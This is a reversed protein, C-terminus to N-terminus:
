AVAQDRPRTRRTRTRRPRIRPGRLPQGPDSGPVLRLSVWQRYQRCEDAFRRARHASVGATGAEEAVRDLQEDLQDRAPTARLYHWDEARVVLGAAVLKTLHRRVTGSHKGTMEAIERASRQEEEDLASLTELCGKGLARGHFADHAALGRMTGSLMSELPVERLKQETGCGGGRLPNTIAVQATEPATLRFVAARDQKSVRVLVLWGLRRLRHLSRSATPTSIGAHLAVSRISLPVHLSGYSTGIQHCAALVARDTSGSLGSFKARTACEALEVIRETADNACTIPGRRAAGDNAKDWIHDFWTRAGARGHEGRRVLRARLGAGGVNEENRLLNWLHNPHVDNMVAINCIALTLRSRDCSGDAKSYRHDEDGFRVLRWLREPLRTPTSRDDRAAKSPEPHAELGTLSLQGTDVAPPQLAALAASWSTLRSGSAANFHEDGLYEVSVLEGSRHPWGPPRILANDRRVDIGAARAREQLVRIGRADLGRCFQHRNGSRGSRIVVPTLGAAVLELRLQGFLEQRSRDVLGDGTLDLDLVLVEPRPRGAVALGGQALFAAVNWSLLEGGSNDPEIIRAQRDTDIVAAALALLLEENVLEATM